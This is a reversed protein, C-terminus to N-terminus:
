KKNYVKIGKILYKGWTKSFAHVEETEVGENTFVANGKNKWEFIGGYLNHVNTYGLNMIKEAIIESRIGLSCYVIIPMEKDPFQVQFQATDFENYGIYTANKLHSVNFEAKERADLIISSDNKDKTDEVSIYPVTNKNYRAIVDSIEKQSFVSMCSILFVFVIGKKM